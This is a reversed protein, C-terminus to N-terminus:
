MRQLLAALKARRSEWRMYQPGSPELATGRAKEAGEAGGPARATFGDRVHTFRRAPLASVPATAAAPGVAARTNAM